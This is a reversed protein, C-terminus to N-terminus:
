ATARAPHHALILDPIQSPSPTFIGPDVRGTNGIKITTDSAGADYRKEQATGPAAAASGILITLAIGWCASRPKRTHQSM